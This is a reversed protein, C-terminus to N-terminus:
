QAKLKALDGESSGGNEFHLHKLNPSALLFPLTETFLSIQETADQQFGDKTLIYSVSLAHLIPSQLTELEFPDEAESNIGRYSGLRAIERSFSQHIWINLRCNPHYQRIAHRLAPPFIDKIAYNPEILHDLRSILSALPEWDKEAYFWFVIRNYQTREDYVRNLYDELFTNLSAVPAYDTYHLRPKTKESQSVANIPAPFQYGNL